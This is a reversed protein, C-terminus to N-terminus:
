LKYSFKEHNENESQSWIGGIYHYYNNRRQQHFKLTEHLM